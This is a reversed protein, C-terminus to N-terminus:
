DAKLRWVKFDRYRASRTYMHRLGIRGSKCPPYGSVDWKCILSESENEKNQIHMEIQDRYKFVEIHYTVNSKFLGTQFYDEPIDTGKLRKKSPDYRRLRIYDNAGNETLAAYSIHYTNMHHFYTRMHPVIRKDNWLAIDTPYDTTGEGTAFFYLINVFKTTTDTRTYDYEICIDGTFTKKTWLVTHCTDNKAEPGAILEMGQDSHIVKARQGDLMWSPKWNEAGSFEFLLEAKDQASKVNQAVGCSIIVGFTFFSILLRFFQTKM